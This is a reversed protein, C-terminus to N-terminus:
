ESSEKIEPNKSNVPLIVTFQTTFKSSTNQESIFSLKGALLKTVWQNVMYLGLGINGKGRGSTVFPEFLASHMASPIGSGTDSVTIYIQTDDLRRAKIEITGQQGPEFGHNLSNVVLNELIQSIIGPRSLLILNDEIDEIVVVSGKKLRPQLSVM